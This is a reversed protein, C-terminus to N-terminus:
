KFKLLAEDLTDTVNLVSLLQVENLIDWNPSSLECIVLDGVRERAMRTIAVLAGLGQTSIFDVKRMHFVIKRRGSKIEEAMFDILSQSTMEDLPTAIYYVSVDGHEERWFKAVEAM